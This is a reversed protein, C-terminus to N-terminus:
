PSDSSSGRQRFLQTLNTRFRGAPQARRCNANISDTDPLRSLRSDDETVDDLGGVLLAHYLLEVM